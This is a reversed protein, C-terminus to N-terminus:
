TDDPLPIFEHEGPVAAFRQAKWDAKAQELREHSSSVFNWWVYRPGDMPAGGILMLHSEGGAALTVAQGPVLVYLVGPDLSHGDLSVAGEVVYVAREEHEPSVALRAGAALMIDAYLTPSLVPTPATMGDFRGAILRGHWGEGALRPLSEVAHHSFAPAMEEAAQPLAVWAQIGFLRGGTHRLTPDTRESHVIGRGATMWNVAGATITQRSGVSDRHVIEGAFLYTVTALGIHPHPRVDLGRGAAFTAPGMRDFFIFPGVMRRRVSPLIRQVEFGGIDRGRPVIMTEIVPSAVGTHCDPDEGASGSM